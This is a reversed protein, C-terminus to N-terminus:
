IVSALNTSITGFFGRTADRIEEITFGDVEPPPLMANADPQKM